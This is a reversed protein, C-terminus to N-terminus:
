GDLKEEKVERRRRSRPQKKEMPKEEIPEEPEQASVPPPPFYERGCVIAAHEMPDMNNGVEGQGFRKLGAVPKSELTV